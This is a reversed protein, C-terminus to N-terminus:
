GLGWGICRDYVCKCYWGTLVLTAGVCVAFAKWTKADQFCPYVASITAWLIWGCEWFWRNPDRNYVHESVHYCTIYNLFAWEWWAGCHMGSPDVQSAPNNKAYRYVNPGDVMGAPDRTLFRGVVHDYYRARYFHLGTAFDHERGTFTFFNTIAETKTRFGGFDDYTYQNAITKDARTLMTVSGLGDFHYYYWSGGREMALPEDIEPGHVYRAVRNGLSDYEVIIENYGSFDRFDYLFSGRCRAAARKLALTRQRCRCYPMGESQSSSLKGFRKAKRTLEHALSWGKVRCDM